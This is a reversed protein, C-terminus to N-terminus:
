HPRLWGTVTDVFITRQDAFLYHSCHDVHTFYKKGVLSRLQSLQSDPFIGDQKGYIAYIRVKKQQINKLRPFVNLRKLPENQYFRIPAEHNRISQKSLDSKEYAEYTQRTEADPQAVKFFGNESALEFCQKRYAASNKDLKELIAIRELMAPDAAYKRRVTDLIHTYTGQQDVLAGALILSTVKEPHAETFLTSVLGGFSHGLITAKQIGYQAYLQNLDALAEQYTFRAQPDASRGEGRRDYVIVFFGRDALTQATTGEFLVSNGSPGGHIFIIPPNKRDGYAATCLKQAFGSFSGLLFFVLTLVRFMFSHNFVSPM